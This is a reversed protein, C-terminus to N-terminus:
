RPKGCSDVMPGAARSVAKGQASKMQRGGIAKATCSLCLGNQTAGGKGCELCKKDMDVNITFGIPTM